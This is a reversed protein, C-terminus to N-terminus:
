KIILYKNKWLQEMIKRSAEYRTGKLVHNGAQSAIKLCKFSLVQEIMKDKSGEHLNDLNRGKNIGEM